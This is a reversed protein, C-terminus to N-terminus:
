QALTGYLANGLRLNAHNFDIAKQALSNQLSYFHDLLRYNGHDLALKVAEVVYPMGQELDNSHILLLGHTAIILTKWHPMDPLAEEAKAFYDLAKRTEGMKSYHKSYDIYVTGLSYQGRLSTHPPDIIRAIQEAEGMFLAFNEEDGMQSYLRGLLQTCNGHAAQDSQPLDYALQLCRMAQIFDGSRRYMDGQYTLAIVEQSNDKLKRAARQMEEFYAIVSQTETYRVSMGLTYGAVHCAPALLRYLDLSREEYEEFQNLIEQVLKESEEKAKQVRAEGLLLWIQNITEEAYAVMGHDRM